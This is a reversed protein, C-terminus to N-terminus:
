LGDPWGGGFIGQVSPLDTIFQITQRRALLGYGARGSEAGTGFFIPHHLHIAKTLSFEAASNV